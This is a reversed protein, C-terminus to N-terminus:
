APDNSGSLFCTRTVFLHQLNGRNNEFLRCGLFVFFGFAVTELGGVAWLAFCSNTSLLLTGVIRKQREFVFFLVITLFAFSVGLLKSALVLDINVYGLLSM